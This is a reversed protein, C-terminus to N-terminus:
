QRQGLGILAPDVFFVHVILRGPRKQEIGTLLFNVAEEDKVPGPHNYVLGNFNDSRFVHLEEGAALRDAVRTLHADLASRFKSFNLRGDFQGYDLKLECLVKADNGASIEMFPVVEGRTLSNFLAKASTKGADFFHHRFNNNLATAIQQPMLTVQQSAM